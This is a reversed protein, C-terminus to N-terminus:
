AGQMEVDGGESSVYINFDERRQSIAENLREKHSHNNPVFFSCVNSGVIMAEAVPMQLVLQLRQQPSSALFDHFSIRSLIPASSFANM